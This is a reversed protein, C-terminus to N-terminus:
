APNGGQALGGERFAEAEKSLKEIIEQQTEIVKWLDLFDQLHQSDKMRGPDVRKERLRDIREASVAPLASKLMEEMEGTPYFTLIQKCCSCIASRQREGVAQFSGCYPCNIKLGSKLITPVGYDNRSM